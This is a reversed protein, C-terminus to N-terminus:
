TGWPLQAAPQRACRRWARVALARAGHRRAGVRRRHLRDVVACLLGDRSAVLAPAGAEVLAAELTAEAAEPDSMSFVLVAANAGVGFPRLRGRLEGEDLEGAIAEALIDGALRRETDRVVRGRMLELAVITVAQQLILREFEGLGGRTM